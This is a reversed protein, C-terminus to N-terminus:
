NNKEDSGFRGDAAARIEMVRILENRRETRRAWRYAVIFITPSHILDEIETRKQGEPTWRDGCAHCYFKATETAVKRLIANLFGNVRQLKNSDGLVGRHCSFHEITSSCAPCV